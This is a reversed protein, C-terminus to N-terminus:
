LRGEGGCVELVDCWGCLRSPQPAFTPTELMHAVLFGLLVPLRLIAKARKELPFDENFLPIEDGRDRLEVFAANTAPTKSTHAHLLMYLPLQVSPCREAVERLLGHDEEGAWVALREWFFADEWFSQPPRAVSGTKYDLIVTKDGRKDIRDAKGQLLLTQGCHVFSSAMKRELRVPTTPPTNRIFRRLRECGVRELALQQDPPSQAFFPEDALRERYQAELGRASLDQARVARGLYPKFFDELLAHVLAGFAAPDGEERVEDLPRIPSLYKYFFALPCRLYADFFGASLEKTALYAELRARIKPTKPMAPNRRPIPRLPMSVIELPPEGPKVLRGRRKEVEWLLQEVFRSRVAKEEYVGTGHAGTQYLIVAEGAGMLLRHFNYAAVNDRHRGDPLGLLRRLPDPLLPDHPPPGPTNNETVDLIFAKKFNMLRTELLGLVQLGTLPDAEFAAREKRLLGRLVSFLASRPLREGAIAADRLEPIVAGALRFLSEADILHREWIDGCHAADLLLGALEALADALGRLTEVAAFNAFCCTLVRNRLADVAEPDPATEDDGPPPAELAFPDLYRGGGRITEEFAHFMLRLPEADDLRLMKLYPHRLLAIVDRWYYRTEDLRSEQLRMITELLQAVATRALPYGMSINADKDPLHHLVPMLMGTDPLVVACDGADENELTEALVALQSHLDYGEVFRCSAMFDPLPADAGEPKDLDLLSGRRPKPVAPPRDSVVEARVKWRRLWDIQERCAFHARGPNVALMPDAHWLLDLAGDDFLRRYVAHESGSLAYSGCVLVSADACFRSVRDLDAAAMAQLLGPTALNEEELRARYAEHVTRLNELIAAAAPLVQDRVHILNQAPVNQRFLDDCLDALRLGWPFFRGLDEPFRSPGAKEGLSRRLDSIVSFLLGVRDLASLVRPPRKATRAGLAALWEEASTIQPLLLPKPLRKDAHLRALLYRAARRHPFVVVVKRFDGGCREILVDVVAQIFHETWPVVGIARGHARNM